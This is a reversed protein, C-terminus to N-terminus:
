KVLKTFYFTVLVFVNFYDMLMFKSFECENTFYYTFAPKLCGNNMWNVQMLRMEVSLTLTM